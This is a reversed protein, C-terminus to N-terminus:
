LMYSIIACALPKATSGTTMSAPTSYQGLDDEESTIVLARGVVSRPGILSMMPDVLKFEAADENQVDINGLDGLHRLPSSPSGHPLQCLFFLFYYVM